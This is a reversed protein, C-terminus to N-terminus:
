LEKKSNAPGVVFTLANSHFTGPLTEPNTPEEANTVVANLTYFGPKWHWGVGHTKTPALCFFIFEGAGSGSYGHEEITFPVTKGAADTLELTVNPARHLRPHIFPGDPTAPIAFLEVTMPQGFYLDTRGSYIGLFAKEVIPGHARPQGFLDKPSRFEPGTV